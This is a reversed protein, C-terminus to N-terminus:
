TCTAQPFRVEMAGTHNFQCVASFLRLSPSLVKKAQVSPQGDNGGKDDCATIEAAVLLAASVQVEEGEVGNVLVSIGDDDDHDDGDDLESLQDFRVSSVAV